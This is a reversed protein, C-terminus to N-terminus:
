AGSPWSAPSAAVPPRVSPSCGPSATCPTPTTPPSAASRAWWVSPPLRGRWRRCMMTRCPESPASAPSPASASTRSIRAGAPRGRGCSSRVSGGRGRTSGAYRAWCASSGLRPTTSRPRPPPATPSRSRCSPGNACACSRRWRWTTPDYIHRTTPPTQCRPSPARRITGPFRGKSHRGRRWTPPAPRSDSM